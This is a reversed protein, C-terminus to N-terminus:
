QFLDANNSRVKLKEIFKPYDLKKIFDDLESVSQFVWYFKQDIYRNSSATVKATMTIIKEGSDLIMFDFNLHKNFAFFWKTGHWCVTVAPMDVPIEKTMETIHNDEAIKVWEAYKDRVEKLSALLLSPYKYNLTVTERSREGAVEIYVNSITNPADKETSVLISFDRNFYDCHYEAVEKQAFSSINLLLFLFVLAQKMIFLTSTLLTNITWLQPFLCFFFVHVSVEDVSEKTDAFVM